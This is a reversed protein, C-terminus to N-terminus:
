EVHQEFLQATRKTIELVEVAGVFESIHNIVPSLGQCFLHKQWGPPLAALFLKVITHNDPPEAM